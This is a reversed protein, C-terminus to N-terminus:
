AGSIATPPPIMDVAERHASLKQACARREKKVAKLNHELAVEQVCLERYQADAAQIKAELQQMLSPEAAVPAVEAAENTEVDSM